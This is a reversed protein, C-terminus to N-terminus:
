NALRLRVGASLNVLNVRPNTSFRAGEFVDSMAVHYGGEVFLFGLSLGAGAGLYWQMDSTRVDLRDNRLDADLNFLATPGGLVYINIAPDNAPDFLNRGLLLPVRLSRDTYRFEVDTGFPDGNQDLGALSYNLNRVLLHAGPRIFWTSGLQLDVGAHYGARGVWSEEGAESVNSGTYGAGLRIEQAMGNSTLLALLIPLSLRTIMTTTNHPHFALM